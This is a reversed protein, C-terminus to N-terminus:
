CSYVREEYLLTKPNPELQPPPYPGWVKPGSAKCGTKNAM